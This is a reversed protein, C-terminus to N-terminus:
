PDGAEVGWHEVLAASRRGATSEEFVPTNHNKGFWSTSYGNEKLITGITAADKPIITNYGPFGTLLEGIYGQYDTMILLINPAGKPPVIRPAWWSKSDVASQKIVGGFAPDPTPLQKGDVTTTADPSGLQGTVQQATSLNTSAVSLFALCAWGVIAARM